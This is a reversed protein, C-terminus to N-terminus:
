KLSSRVTTVTCQMAGSLLVRQGETGDRLAAIMHQAVQHAEIPRYNPPILPELLRSLRLGLHEAPRGPQGLRARDGVLLAPRAIVLCRYGVGALSQEMDGKTRNYFVRSSPDAGMASVVALRTAGAAHAARAVALVADHDIARFAPRSGAAKLTTGLAIYVEDVAPLAPPRTVDVTHAIIRPDRLAPARRGLVHITRTARDALLTALVEQGVLGTAGAVLVVRDAAPAAAVVVM